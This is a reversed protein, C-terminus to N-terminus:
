HSYLSTAKATTRSRRGPRWRWDIARCRDLASAYPDTPRRADSKVPRSSGAIAECSIATAAVVRTTGCSSGPLALRCRRTQYRRCPDSQGCRIPWTFDRAPRAGPGHKAPLAVAAAWWGRDDGLRSRLRWKTLKRGATVLADVRVHGATRPERRDELDIMSIDVVRHIAKHRCAQSHATWQAKSDAPLCSAGGPEDGPNPQRGVDQLARSLELFAGHRFAMTCRTREFTRKLLNESVTARHGDEYAGTRSRRRGLRAYSPPPTCGKMTSPTQPGTCASGREDSHAQPSQDVCPRDNGSAPHGVVGTTRASTGGTLITRSRPRAALSRTRRTGARGGPAPRLARVEDALQPLGSSAIQRSPSNPRPM